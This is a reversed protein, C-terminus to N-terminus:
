SAGVSDGQPGGARASAGPRLQHRGAWMAVIMALVSTGGRHGADLSALLAADMGAARADSLRLDVQKELAYLNM